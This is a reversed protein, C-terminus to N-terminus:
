ARWCVDLVDDLRAVKNESYVAVPEGKEKRERRCGGRNTGKM